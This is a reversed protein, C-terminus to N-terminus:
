DIKKKRPIWYPPTGSSSFAYDYNDTLTNAVSGSGLHDTGLFNIYNDYGDIFRAPLCFTEAKSLQICLDGIDRTYVANGEEDTNFVFFRETRMKGNNNDSNRKTYWKVLFTEGTFRSEVLHESRFCSDLLEWEKQVLKPLNRYRLKLVKRNHIHEGIDWSGIYNGESSPMSFMEDRESYMVHSNFFSSDAIRVNTWESNGRAPRCFSLQPGLFKVAVVCDEDEPSSSSMALNTVIQTQCRPLTVLPPLSIRKPNTDSANPNLDDQLCVVGDKLTAVWGNSSGITGMEKKETAFSWGCFNTIEVDGNRFSTSFFRTTLHRLAHAKRSSLKSLLLSM